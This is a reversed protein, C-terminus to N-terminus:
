PLYILILIDIMARGGWMHVDVDGGIFFFDRADEKM